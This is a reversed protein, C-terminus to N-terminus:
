PAAKKLEVSQLVREAIQTAYIDGDPYAITIQQLGNDQAFLLIEYYMRESTTSHKFTGFARRGTVGQGTDFGEEKVLMNQAGTAEFQTIAAAMGKELDIPSESKVAMTALGIFFDGNPKGHAFLDFDRVLAMTEKPYFTEAKHRTLVKPTEIVVAPTGYESRVWEGELLVKYPQSLVTDKVYTFGHKNIYFAGIGLLVAFIGAVSYIVIRRQKQKRTREINRTEEVEAPEEQPEPPVSAHLTTIVTGIKERDAVIEFDNPRSKAFKVLDAQRLVSELKHFTDESLPMNKKAAAMQLAYILESTTSEMAPIHIVEEIYTRAIDTLESYYDKVAGQELLRKQELRVLLANAKEIPSKYVIQPAPEAVRRKKWYRVFAFVAAALLLLGLIMWIWFTGTASAAPAVPKIDFMKQKLTDVAVPLVEVAISDSFHTRNNIIVRLPPITFRGSDFQALGYTKVLEWRNDKLTTDTKYRRIVEMPGFFEGSPFVVQSLTDVNTRLQLRFESGIKKQVSDIRTEVRKTQAHFATCLMLFIVVLLKKM